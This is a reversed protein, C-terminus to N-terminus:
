HVSSPSLLGLGAMIILLSINLWTYSQNLGYYLLRPASFRLFIALRLFTYHEYEMNYTFWSLSHKMPPDLCSFVNHSCSYSASLTEITKSGTKPEGSTRCDLQKCPTQHQKCPTQHRKCPTQHQKCPLSIVKFSNKLM